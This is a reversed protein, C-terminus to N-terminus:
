RTPTFRCVTVNHLCRVQTVTGLHETNQQVKYARLVGTVDEPVKIVCRSSANKTEDEFIGDKPTYQESKNIDILGNELDFAQNLLPM